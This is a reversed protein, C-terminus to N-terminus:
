RKRLHQRPDVAQGDVRIEFYLIGGRRQRSSDLYALPQKRDVMQGVTVRVDRLNGYVSEVELGHDLRVFVGLEEDYGSAVVEGSGAALVEEEDDAAGIDLGPHGRPDEETGLYFEKRVPGQLPWETPSFRRFIAAARLHDLRDSQLALLAFDMENDYLEEMELAEIDTGHGLMALVQARMASLDELEDNLENLVLLQERLSENETELSRVRQADRWIMAYTLMFYLVTAAFLSAVIIGFLLLQKSLRYQKTGSHDDPVVIISYTKTPM